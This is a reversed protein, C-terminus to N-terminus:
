IENTLAIESIKEIILVDRGADSMAIRRVSNFGIDTFRKSETEFDDHGEYIILEFNSLFNLFRRKDRVWNMINLATVIDPAFELLQREWNSNDDFNVRKYAPAVNLAAAVKQAASLIRADADVCLADAAGMENIAFCSLLSLNCGLELIKKGRFDASTRLYSWREEWPREGPFCYGDVWLGYYALPKGPMSADSIQGEIWAERILKLKESEGEHLTPLRAYVSNLKIRRRLNRKTVEHRYLDIARQPLLSKAFNKLASAKATNETLTRRESNVSMESWLSKWSGHPEATTKSVGWFNICFAEYVSTRAAQDFDILGLKGNGAILVNKVLVDRHGVGRLSLRWLLPLLKILVKIRFSVPTPFNGLPTGEVFDYALIDFGNQHRYEIKSPIGSMGELDNLIEAEQRTNNIRTKHALDRKTDVVKYIRKNSQFVVRSDDLESVHLLRSEPIDLHSIAHQLSNKTSGPPIALDNIEQGQKTTNQSAMNRENKGKM